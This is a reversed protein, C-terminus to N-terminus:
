EDKNEKLYAAIMIADIEQETLDNGCMKVAERAEINNDAAHKFIIYIDYKNINVLEATTEILTYSISNKECERKLINDNTFPSNYISFSLIIVASLAVFTTVDFEKWDFFVGIVNLIFILCWSIIIFWALFGM